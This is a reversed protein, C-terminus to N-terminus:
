FVSSIINARKRQGAQRNQVDHIVDEYENEICGDDGDDNDELNEYGDRFNIGLNHLVAASCVTATTKDMNTRMPISLCCFRRKLVGFAREISNHTKAHALNYRFENQQRPIPIPTMLFPCFPYTSDRLLHGDYGGGQLQAYQASNRFTRSDHVSGLWRCVINYLNLDSGCVAQVNLSFIAKRCRFQEAQPDGPGM